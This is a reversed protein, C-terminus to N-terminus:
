AITHSPRVRNCKPPAGYTKIFLNYLKGEEERWNKSFQIYRFFCDSKKLLCRIYDNRNNEKLHEGLRKRINKTSGIYIVNSNGSPYEIKERRLRLEYIGSNGPASGHVSGKRFPYLLSFNASIPPYKYGSLRGKASPIGLENRCIGVSCRSVSLGYQNKLTVSIQRDSLPRKAKNSIDNRNMENFNFDENEKDLLQKILSKNIERQAPFFSKLIREEGSPTIISLKRVLRSVWSDCISCKTTRIDYRTEPYPSKNLSETLGTQSFPVLDTQNGTSLYKEQHKIVEKIMRHTLQNRSSIRRLKYLLRSDEGTFCSNSHVIYTKNFGAYTYRISFGRTNKAIEAIVKSSGCEINSTTKAGSLTRETVASRGYKCYVSEETDEIISKYKGLSFELFNAFIVRGVFKAHGKTWNQM